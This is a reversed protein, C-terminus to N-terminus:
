RGLEEARIVVRGFEVGASMGRRRDILGWEPQGEATMISMLHLGNSFSVLLEPLRGTLQLSTVSSGVVRHLLPMWKEEDSWSGCWIRRKGELRWSWEIM